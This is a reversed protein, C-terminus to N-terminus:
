IGGDDSGQKIPSEPAGFGISVGGEDGGREVEPEEGGSGSGLDLGGVLKWVLVFATLGIVLYDWRISHKFSHKSVKHGGINEPQPDRM